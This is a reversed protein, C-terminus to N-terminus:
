DTLLDQIAQAILIAASLAVACLVGWVILEQTAHVAEDPLLMSLAVLSSASALLVLFRELFDDLRKQCDAARASRAALRPSRGVSSKM